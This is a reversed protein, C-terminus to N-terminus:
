FAPHAISAVVVGIIGTATGCLWALVLMTWAADRGRQSRGGVQLAVAGGIAFCLAMAALHEKTEFAMAVQPHQRLLDLKIFRRYGPYIAWGMAFPVFLFTAALVASRRTWVPLGKRRKLTIVPHLLLALALWGLHGHLRELLAFDTGNM